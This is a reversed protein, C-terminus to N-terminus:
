IDIDNKICYEIYADEVVQRSVSQKITVSKGKIFRVAVWYRRDKRYRIYKGIKGNMSKNSDILALKKSFEMIAKKHAATPNLNIHLIKNIVSGFPDSSIMELEELSNNNLKSELIIEM